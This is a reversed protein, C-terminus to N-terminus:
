AASCAASWTSNQWEVSAGIRRGYKNVTQIVNCDGTINRGVTFKIKDDTIIIQSYVNQPISRYVWFVLRM